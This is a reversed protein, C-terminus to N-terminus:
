ILAVRLTAISMTLEASSLPRHKIGSRDSKIYSITLSAAAAPMLKIHISKAVHKKYFIIKPSCFLRPLPTTCFYIEFRYVSIHLEQTQIQRWFNGFACITILRSYILRSKFALSFTASSSEFSKGRIQLTVGALSAAWKGPSFFLQKM